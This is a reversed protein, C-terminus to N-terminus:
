EYRLADLPNLRAARRSPFFGTFLGILLSFIVVLGYFWVPTYFIEMSSGGLSLALLSVILNVIRTFIFGIVLGSAGGGLGMFISEALFMQEIGKQTAGITKMIGIERTRELLSITMTNLMGIAAIFLAIIGIVTFTVQTISFIQNIQQITDTMATAMFGLSLIKERVDTIVSQDKVKVKASKFENLSLRDFNSQHLYIYNSDDKIVGSIILQEPIEVNTQNTLTASPTSISNDSLEGTDLFSLRVKTGIAKDESLNFLSLIATTIIIKNKEQETFLQGTPVTLASLRFYDADVGIAQTQTKIDNYVLEAAISKATSITDVNPNQKIQTIAQADLKVFDKIETNPFVDMTLLSESNAIKGIVLKQVGFTLSVLFYVAGIGIGIGLITLFSRFKKTSFRQTTIEIIDGLLIDTSFFLKLPNILKM